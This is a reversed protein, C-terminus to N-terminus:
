LNYLFLVMCVRKIGVLGILYLFYLEMILFLCICVELNQVLTEFDISGLDNGEDIGDRYNEMSIVTCGIVSAM